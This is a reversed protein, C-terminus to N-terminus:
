GKEKHNDIIRRLMESFSVGRFAALKKVKAEQPEGLVIQKRKMAM